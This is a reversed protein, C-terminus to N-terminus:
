ASIRGISKQTLVSKACETPGSQTLMDFASSTSESLMDLDGHLIKVIILLLLQHLHHFPVLLCAEASEAGCPFSLSDLHGGEGLWM